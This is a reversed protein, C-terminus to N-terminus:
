LVTPSHTGCCGAHPPRLTPQAALKGPVTQQWAHAGGWCHRSGEQSFGRQASLETQRGPLQFSITFSHLPAQRGAQGPPVHGSNTKILLDWLGRPHLLSPLTCICDDTVALEEQIIQRFSFGGLRTDNRALDQIEPRHKPLM